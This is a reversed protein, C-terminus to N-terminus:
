ICHSLILNALFDDVDVDVDLLISVKFGPKLEIQTLKAWLKFDANVLEAIVIRRFFFLSFYITGIFQPFVENLKM